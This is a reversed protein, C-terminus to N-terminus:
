VNKKNKRMTVGWPPCTEKITNKLELADQFEFREEIEKALKRVEDILFSTEEIHHEESVWKQGDIEVPKARKVKIWSYGEYPQKTSMPKVLPNYTEEYCGLKESIEVMEQFPDKKGFIADWNNEFTKRDISFPRPKSGKGNM